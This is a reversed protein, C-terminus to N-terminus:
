LGLEKRIEDYNVRPSKDDFAADAAAIDEQDEMAELKELDEMPVIAVKDKGRRDVVVREHKRAVRDFLDFFKTRAATIKITPM